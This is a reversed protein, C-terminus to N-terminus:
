RWSRVRYTRGNSDKATADGTLKMKRRPICTAPKDSNGCGIGEFNGIVGFVHRCIKHKAMYDAERQCAEQDTEQIPTLFLLLMLTYRLSKM